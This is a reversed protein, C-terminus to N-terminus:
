EYVGDLDAKFNFLVKGNPNLKEIGYGHIHVDEQPEDLKVFFQALKGKTFELQQVGGVPEGNRMEVVPLPFTSGSETTVRVAGSDDSNTVRDGGDGGDGDEDDQLVIFLGVAVAILVVLLGVRAGTSRM